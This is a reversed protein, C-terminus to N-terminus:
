SNGLTEYFDGTFQRLIFCQTNQPNIYFVSYHAKVSSKFTIKLGDLGSEFRNYAQLIMLKM